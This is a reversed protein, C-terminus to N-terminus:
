IKFRVILQFYQNYEKSEGLPKGNEDTWTIKRTYTIGHSYRLGIDVKEIINYNLGILGSIEFYNDYFSWIDNSHDKSKAKANILYAFEPGISAFFKDTIYFDALIPLQAYFLQFRVDDDQSDKDYQVVGGKQIFGPEVSLGWFGASKYGAYGNINFSIMPYYATADKAIDPINTMHAKAVDLGALVGFKIDQAKLSLGSFLILAFTLWITKTKM